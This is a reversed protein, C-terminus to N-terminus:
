RTGSFISNSGTKEVGFQSIIPYDEAPRINSFYERMFGKALQPILESILPPVYSLLRNDKYEQFFTSIRATSNDEMWYYGVGLYKDYKTIRISGQPSAGQPTFSNLISVAKKHSIKSSSEISTFGKNRTFVSSVYHVKKSNQTFM